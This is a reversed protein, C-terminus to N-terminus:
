VQIPKLLKIKIQKGKELKLAPFESMPKGLSDSAKQGFILSHAIQEFFNAIWENGVQTIRERDSMEESRGSCIAWMAWKIQAFYAIWECREGFILLHTFILWESM